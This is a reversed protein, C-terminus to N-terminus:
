RGCLVRLRSVRLRAPGASASGAPASASGVPGPGPRNRRATRNPTAPHRVALERMASLELWTGWSSIRRGASIVAFVFDDSAGALGAGDGGAIAATLGALVPGPAIAPAEGDGTFGALDANGAPVCWFLGQEQSEGPPMEGADSDLPEGGVDDRRGFGGDQEGPRSGPNEPEEGDPGHGPTLGDIM